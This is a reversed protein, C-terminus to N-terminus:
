GIHVLEEIDTLSGREEVDAFGREPSPGIGPPQGTKAHSLTALPPEPTFVKQSKQFGL